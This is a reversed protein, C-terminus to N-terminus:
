TDVTGEAAGCRSMFANSYGKIIFVDLTMGKSANGDCRVRLFM